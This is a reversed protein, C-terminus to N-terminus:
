KNVKFIMIGSNNTKTPSGSKENLIIRILNKEQEHEDVDAYYDACAVSRFIFFTRTTFLKRQNAACNRPLIMM